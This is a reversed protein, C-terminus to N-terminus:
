KGTVEIYDEVMHFASPFVSSMSLGFLATGVWLMNATNLILSLPTTTVNSIYFFVRFHFLSVRICLSACIFYEARIRHTSDCRWSVRQLWAIFLRIAINWKSSKFIVMLLFGALVCGVLNMILIRSPHLKHALGIALFRGLTFFGWFTSTLFAANPKSM